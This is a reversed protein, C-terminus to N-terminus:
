RPPGPAQPKPPTPILLNVTGGDIVGHIATEPLLYYNDEGNIEYRPAQAAMRRDLMVKEGVKVAKVNQAIAIVEGVPTMQAMRSGEPIVVGGASKEPVDIKLLVMDHLPRFQPKPKIEEVM